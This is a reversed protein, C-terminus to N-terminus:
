MIPADRCTPTLFSTMCEFLIYYYDLINNIRKHPVHTDCEFNEFIVFVLKRPMCKTKNFVIPNVQQGVTYTQLVSMSLRTFQFENSPLCDLVSSSKVTTPRRSTCSLKRGDM